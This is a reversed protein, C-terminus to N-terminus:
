FSASIAKAIEATGAPNPHTTDGSQYWTTNSTKAATDFIKAGGTTTSTWNPLDILTVKGAYTNGTDSLTDTLYQSASLKSVQELRATDSGNAINLETKVEYGRELYGTTTTHVLAVIKNYVDDARAVTQASTGGYNASTASAWDNRGIQFAIVNRGSLKTVGLLGNTADRRTVLDAVVNGSVGQNIVRWSAPMAYSSGPETLVMGMSVGSTVETIGQTISDGELILQDTIATISWNSVLAAAAADAQTNTLGTNWLAIEYLDFTGYAAASFSNRGIDGGAVATRTGGPQAIDASNANLYARQGGNATTRAAVGIVQMQSGALLLNGGTAAVTSINNGMISPALNSSGAVQIVGGLNNTADGNAGQSFIAATSAPRRHYRGIFFCTINRQDATFSSALSLFEAGSFRWFKRGLGDTMQVAGTSTGGTLNNSGTQDTAATVRSGSLTVSATNPHFQSTPTVGFTTRSSGAVTAANVTLTVDLYTSAGTQDTVTLRFTYTGASTPTGTVAGTSSSVSLPSPKGTQGAPASDAVSYPSIGGAITPTFSYSTGVTATTPTGSISLAAAVASTAASTAASGAGGTNSAVVAVTIANGVDGSVLTYTSSTAGSINSGARKWQYTYGTPSGTWTGTSATLVQGSVAYGTITPAVTNSPPLVAVSISNSVAPTSGGANSAVVRCTCATGADASVLVYTSSTAGSIDVGDRRWQYTYGTPSNSWTGTSCSLTQGVTGTGTVAPLVSNVPVPTPADVVIQTAVSTAVTSGGGNTATVSVTMVANLDSSTLTRTSNISGSIPTGNRNWQYAYTDPNGTWFGTTASLVQGVQPTGSILPLGTNVPLPVGPVTYSPAIGDYQFDFIDGGAASVPGYSAMVGSATVSGLTAAGLVIGNKRCVATTNPPVIGTVTRGSGATIANTAPAIGSGGGRNTLRLSALSM